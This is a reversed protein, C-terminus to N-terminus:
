CLTGGGEGRISTHRRSNNTTNRHFTSIQCCGAETAIPTTYVVVLLRLATTHDLIVMLSSVRHFDFIASVEPASLDHSSTVIWQKAARLLFNSLHPYADKFKLKANELKTIDLKALVPRFKVCPITVRFYERYIFEFMKPDVKTTRWMHLEELAELEAPIGIKILVSLNYVLSEGKLKFIETTTSNKEIDMIRRAEDIVMTAERKQLTLDELKDQMYKLQSEGESLEAKLAEV